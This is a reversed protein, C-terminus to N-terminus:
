NWIDEEGFLMKETYIRNFDPHVSLEIYDCRATIEKLRDYQSPDRLVRVAGALAADGTQVSKEAFGEPFMGTKEASYPDLHNGFGGALYVKGVEEATIGTEELLIEIGAAVAAKALQLQRVDAASLYVDETIRLLGNGNEDEEMMKQWYPPVEDPPLLRGFGDIVGEGVLVAALDILGSGCIGEAKGNGIVTMHLEDDMRFTDAAGNMGPMGCSIGAGEFAPGSAVACVTYRGNRYLAMEGNTGIDLFLACDERCMTEDALLGATIDGGVYGAVCPLFRVSMGCIEQVPDDEFLTEPRYPALSISVPSIGAAIHEMVTNGAIVAESVDPSIERIMDTIQTMIRDQMEQLGGEHDMCYRIRSIVDAGYVRLVNMASRTGLERGSMLDYVKVVVTTTGLDVAAGTGEGPMHKGEEGADTLIEGGYEETRIFRIGSVKTQCARVIGRDTAVLCKGCTGNGGCPADIVIGNMRFVELLNQDEEAQVTREEGHHIIHLEKM